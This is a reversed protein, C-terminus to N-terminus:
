QGLEVIVIVPNSDERLTAALTQLSPATISEAAAADVIDLAQMYGVLQNNRIYSPTFAVGGLFLGPSGEPGVSSFGGPEPGRGSSIERRDFVLRVAGRKELGYASAFIYRDGEWVNTVTYSNGPKTASNTGFADAPVRYNGLDLLLGPELAGDRYHFLTDNRAEKVLLSNGNDSLISRGGVDVMVGQRGDDSVFSSVMMGSGKDVVDVTRELLLYPSYVELLAVITGVSSKFDPDSGFDIGAPSDKLVILKGEFLAM